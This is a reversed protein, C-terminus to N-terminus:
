DSEYRYWNNRQFHFRDGREHLATHVDWSHAHRNVHAVHREDTTHRIELRSTCFRCNTRRDVHAQRSETPTHRVNCTHSTVQLHTIHSLCICRIHRLTVWANTHCPVFWAYTRCSETHYSPPMHIVHSETNCSQPMHIVHSETNCSQPM